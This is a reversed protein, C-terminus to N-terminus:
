RKSSPLNSILPIPIPGLSALKGRIPSGTPIPLRNVQILNGMLIPPQSVWQRLARIPSDTLIPLQNVWQHQVQIPSDMLILLQNDTLLPRLREMCQSSCVAPLPWLFGKRSSEALCSSVWFQWYYALGWLEWAQQGTTLPPEMPTRTTNTLPIPESRFLM